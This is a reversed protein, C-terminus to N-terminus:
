QLVHVLYLISQINLIFFTFLLIHATHNCAYFYILLLLGMLVTMRPCHSESENKKKKDTELNRESKSQFIM